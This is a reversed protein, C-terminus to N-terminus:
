RYVVALRLADSLHTVNFKQTSNVRSWVVDNQLPTGHLISQQPDPGVCRFVLPPMATPDNRRYM